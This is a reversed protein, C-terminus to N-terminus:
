RTGSRRRWVSAHGLAEQVARLNRTGAYGRTAYRHRLKHASWGPPMLRSLVQGVWRPSLHGETQGPFLFGRPCFAVIEAALSETIPVVRQKAGKGHVILAWGGRDRVLDERHCQAVEARRLGAEGALRAMLRERPSAAALLERWVEDTAPRPRPKDGSVRPLTVAPNEAVIGNAVAWEFFSNLSTRMGKRYENSWTRESCLDVLVSLVLQRPHDTASRRVIARLHDQRLRITAKSAGGIRLWASWGTIAKDWEASIGRTGAGM